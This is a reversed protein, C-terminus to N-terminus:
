LITVQIQYYIGSSFIVVIAKTTLEFIYDYFYETNEGLIRPM